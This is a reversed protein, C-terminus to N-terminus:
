VLDLGASEIQQKLEGVQGELDEVENTLTHVKEESVELEKELEDRQQSMDNADGQAMDREHRLEDLADNETDMAECLLPHDPSNSIYARREREELTLPM